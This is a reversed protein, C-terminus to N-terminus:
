KKKEEEKERRRIEDRLTSALEYNESLIASELAKKLAPLSVTNITLAQKGEADELLHDQELITRLTYISVHCRLALAIADSTRSDLQFNEGFYEFFLYSYFVGEKVKYILVKQLHINMRSILSVILDHTLPRPVQYNMLAAKISQAEQSGIIIPLKREGGVEQLLLAYAEAPHLIASMDKIKLEIEKEM